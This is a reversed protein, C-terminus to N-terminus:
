NSRMAVHMYLIPGYRQQIGYDVSALTANSQPDKLIADPDSGVTRWHNLNFVVDKSAAPLLTAIAWKWASSRNSLAPNDTLNIKIPIERMCPHASLVARTVPILQHQGALTLAIAHSYGDGYVGRDDTDFFVSGKVRHLPDAATVLGCLTSELERFKVRGDGELVQRWWVGEQKWDFDFLGAKFFVTPDQDGKDNVLGQFALAALQEEYSLRQRDVAEDMDWYFMQRPYSSAALEANALSVTLCQLGLFVSATLIIHRRLRGTISWVAM